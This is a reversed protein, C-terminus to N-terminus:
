NSTNEDKTIIVLDKAANMAQETAAKIQAEAQTKAQKVAYNAMDRYLPTTYKKVVLDQREEITLPRVQEKTMEQVFGDSVEVEIKLKM